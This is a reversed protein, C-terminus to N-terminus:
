RLTPMEFQCFAAMRSARIKRRGQSQCNHARGYDPVPFVHANGEELGNWIRVTQEGFGNRQVSASAFLMATNSGQYPPKSGSPAESPASTRVPKSGNGVHPLTQALC